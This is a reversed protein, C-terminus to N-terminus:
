RSLTACPFLKSREEENLSLYKIRDFLRHRLMRPSWDYRPFFGELLGAFAHGNNSFDIAGRVGRGQKTGEDYELVM